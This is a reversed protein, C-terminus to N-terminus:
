PSRILLSQIAGYTPQRHSRWWNAWYPLKPFAYPELDEWPLSLADVAWAQSDPFPSVCAIQQQVENHVLGSHHQRYSDTSHQELLCRSATEQGLIGGKTGSLKCAVRKRSPVVNGQM